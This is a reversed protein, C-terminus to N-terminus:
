HNGKELPPVTRLYAWLAGLETDTMKGYAEWPMAKNIATGDKRKGERLARIFDAENWSELGTEHPTLNAVIPMDPDGALKGGSLNPGHCGRCVQVIHQGLEANPAAAPPDVLHAKDHDITAAVFTKPETAILFSFAPGFKVPGLDRDVPPMSRIYAVIDSLEHDSLNVFDQSPMSSTRGNRRVGHRVARDWDNATFGQTVGGKGSTLNPAVWHGVLAVDIITDGGFDKAHCNNCSTRSEVLHLGRVIARELAVANLDVGALPDTPAAGAAVREARLATLEQDTLPFPIPFSATHVTWEKNYRSMAVRYAVFWAILALVVIAALGGGIYRLAKRM